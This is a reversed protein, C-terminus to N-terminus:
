DDSNNSNSETQYTNGEVKEKEFVELKQIPNKILYNLYKERAVAMGKNNGDRLENCRKILGSGGTLSQMKRVTPFEYPSLNNELVLNRIDEMLFDTNELNYKTLEKKYQEKLSILEEKFTIAENVLKMWSESSSEVNKPFRNLKKQKELIKKYYVALYKEIDEIHSKINVDSCRQSSKPDKIGIFKDEGFSENFKLSIWMDFIEQVRPGYTGFKIEEKVAENLDDFKIEYLGDSFINVKEKFSEPTLEQYKTEIEDKYIFKRQYPWPLSANHKKEIFSIVGKLDPKGVASDEAFTLTFISLFSDYGSSAEIEEINKNIVEILTRTLKESNQSKLIYLIGKIAQIKETCSILSLISEDIDKYTYEKLLKLNSTM